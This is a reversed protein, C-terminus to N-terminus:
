SAPYAVATVTGGELNYSGAGTDEDYGFAYFNLTEGGAPVVVVGSGSFYGDHNTGAAQLDGAGVNFLNNSFDSLAAGNYVYLSPAVGTGTLAVAKFNVTVQYTGQALALTDALHTANSSFHGGTPVSAVPTLSQTTISTSAGAPGAPGQPGAPGAPGQQGQINWVAQWGKACTTGKTPDKYVNQITRSSGVVCGHLSGPPIVATTSAGATSVVALSTVAAAAGTLLAHRIRM